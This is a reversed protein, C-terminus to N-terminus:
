RKPKKVKPYKSLFGQLAARSADAAAKLEAAVRSEESEFEASAAAEIGEFVYRRQQLDYISAVVTAEIMKADKAAMGKVLVAVVFRARHPDGLTKFTDPTWSEVSQLDIRRGDALAQVQVGSVVDFGREQFDRTLAARGLLAWRSATQADPAAPCVIPLLLARPAPTQPACLAALSVALVTALRRLVM